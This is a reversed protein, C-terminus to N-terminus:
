FLRRLNKLAAKLILPMLCNKLLSFFAVGQLVTGLRASGIITAVFPHYEGKELCGFPEGFALDGSVDFTTFNYWSMIDVPKRGGQAHEHFRRIFLDIYEGIIPEQERIM